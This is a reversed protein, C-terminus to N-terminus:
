DDLGSVNSPRSFLPIHFSASVPTKLHSRKQGSSLPALFRFLPSYRRSTSKPCIMCVITHRSTGATSVPNQLIKLCCLLLIHAVVFVFVEVLHWRELRVRLVISALLVGPLRLHSVLGLIIRPFIEILVRLEFCLAHRHIPAPRAVFPMHPM